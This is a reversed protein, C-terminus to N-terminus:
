SDFIVYMNYAQQFM